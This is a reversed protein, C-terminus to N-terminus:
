IGSWIHGCNSIAPYAEVKGLREIGDDTLFRVTYRVYVLASTRGSIRDWFSPKFGERGELVLKCCDKNIEYFDSIDQYKIQDDPWDNARVHKQIGREEYEVFPSTAYSTVPRERPKLHAIIYAVAIDIKEQDSLYRKQKFCYGSYNLGAITAIYVVALVVVSLLVRRFVTTLTFIQM